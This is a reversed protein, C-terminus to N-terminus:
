LTGVAGHATVPNARPLLPLSRRTYYRSPSLLSPFPLISYFLIAGISSSSFLSLLISPHFFLLISSSSPLIFLLLFLVFLLLRLFFAAGHTGHRAPNNRNRNRNRNRDKNM